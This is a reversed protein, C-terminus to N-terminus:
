TKTTRPARKTQALLYQELETRLILWKKGVRIGGPLSGNSLMRRVGRCSTHLLRAASEITM